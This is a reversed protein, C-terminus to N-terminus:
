FIGTEETRFNLMTENEAPGQITWASLSVSYNTYPKLNEFKYRLISPDLTINIVAFSGNLLTQNFIMVYALPPGRWDLPKLPPWSINAHTTNFNITIPSPPWKPVLFLSIM